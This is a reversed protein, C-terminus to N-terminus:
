GVLVIEVLALALITFIVDFAVLLRFWIQNEAGVPEGAILVTSLQIAGMLAPILMPYILTPLMLERLRLNVTMASFLTGIVTIGWTGLLMVLFLVALQRPWRVNYFIAFIPLCICEVIVLLVYNAVCKGFFIQAGSAPSAILADLCDNVLERAFSRNLILTGAFAFVLWLLGGAIERVQDSGPDFAFSFLLLIVLAFSLSANVTEKSRVESRLDKAAVAWAQRFFNM